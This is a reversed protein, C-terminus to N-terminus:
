VSAVAHLCATCLGGYVIEMEVEVVGWALVMEVAGSWLAGGCMCMSYMSLPLSSIRLSCVV